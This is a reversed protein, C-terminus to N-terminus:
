GRPTFCMTPPLPPETHPWYAGNDTTCAFSELHSSVSVTSPRKVSPPRLKVIKHSIQMKAAHDQPDGDCGRQKNVLQQRRGLCYLQQTGAARHPDDQGIILALALKIARRLLSFIHFFDPTPPIQLLLHRIACQPHALVHESVRNSPPEIVRKVCYRHRQHHLAM